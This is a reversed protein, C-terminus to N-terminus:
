APAAADTDYLGEWRVITPDDLSFEIRSARFEATAQYCRPSTATVGAVEAM